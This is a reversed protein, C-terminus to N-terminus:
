LLPVKFSLFPPLVTRNCAPNECFKLDDNNHLSLRLLLQFQRILGLFNSDYFHRVMAWLASVVLDRYYCKIANKLHPRESSDLSKELPLFSNFVRPLVQVQINKGRVGATYSLFSVISLIIQALPFHQRQSTGVRDRPNNTSETKIVTCTHNQLPCDQQPWEVLFFAFITLFIIIM